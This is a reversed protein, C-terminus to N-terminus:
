VRAPSASAAVAAVEAYVRAYARAQVELSLRTEAKARAARSLQEWRGPDAVVWEIGAALDNADFCVARYGNQRHDVLDIMGTSDFSVVPTGCALSETAVQPLNEEVSPVVMVDAASYALALTVDDHLRGLSRLTMGPVDLAQTASGFVVVEIRDRLTSQGLKRLAPQLFQFGKRPDAATLAGFMILIKTAPLGLLERAVQRGLPRFVRTNLGNPIVHLPCNAFLSSARAREGLWTSPTVITMPVDAWAKRKRSFVWRSLDLEHSSHLQPCAGCARTYGLCEGSYHCGGTFPWMDHLTWVVPVKLRAISEIRLSGSCVWHLNVVQPALQALHSAMTEPLWGLSFDLQDYRGYLHLPAPDISRRLKAVTNGMRSKSHTSIVRADDTVKFQVLMRSDVSAAILGQHLRYAARAAGGDGDSYSLHVVSM